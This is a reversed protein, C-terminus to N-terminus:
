PCRRISVSKKMEPMAYIRYFGPAVKQCSVCKGTLSQAQRRGGGAAFPEQWPMMKIPTLPPLAPM